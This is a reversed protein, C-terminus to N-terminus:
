VVGAARCVPCRVGRSGVGGRVVWAEVCRKHFAHGCHLMERVRDGRRFAAFCIPCDPEAYPPTAYALPGVFRHTTSALSPALSATESTAAAARPLFVNPPEPNAHDHAHDVATDAPNATDSPNIPNGDGGDDTNYLHLSPGTRPSGIVGPPVAAYAANASRELTTPNSVVDDGDEAAGDVGCGKVAECGHDRCGSEVDEGPPAEQGEGVGGDVQVKQRREEREEKEVVIVEVVDATAGKGSEKEGGARELGAGRGAGRGGAVGCRWSWWRMRKLAYRGRAKAGQGRSTEVEAATRERGRERRPSM